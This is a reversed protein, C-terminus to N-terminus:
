DAGAPLACSVEDLLGILRPFDVAVGELLNRRGSAESCDYFDQVKKEHAELMECIAEVRDLLGDISSVSLGPGPSPWGDDPVEPPEPEQRRGVVSVVYRPDSEYDCELVSFARGLEAALSERTLARTYLGFRLQEESKDPPSFRYDLRAQVALRTTMLPSYDTRMLYWYSAYKRRTAVIFGRGGDALARHLRAQLRFTERPAPLDGYFEVLFGDFRGLTADLEKADLCLAKFPLKLFDAWANAANVLGPVTDIGVVDLGRAALVLCDRGAGCGAYLFRAKPRMRGAIRELRPYSRPVDKRGAAKAKALERRSDQELEALNVAWRAVCARTLEEPTAAAHVIGLLVQQLMADFDWFRSRTQRRDEGYLTRTQPAFRVFPKMPASHSSVRYSLDLVRVVLSVPSDALNSGSAALPAPRM